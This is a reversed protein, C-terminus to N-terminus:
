SLSVAVFFASRRGLRSWFFLYFFCIAALDLTAWLCKLQTPSLHWSQANTWLFTQVLAPHGDVAVGQNLHSDFNQANEARFLAGLEDSDWPREEINIFRVGIALILVLLFPIHRYWRTRHLKPTM